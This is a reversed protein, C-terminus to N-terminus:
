YIEMKLVSQNIDNTASLLLTIGKFINKDLSHIMIPVIPILFIM